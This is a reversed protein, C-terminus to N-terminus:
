VQRLEKEGFVIGEFVFLETEREKWTGPPLGAKFCVQDLFEFGNWGYETAVQPLLVGTRGKAFIYLGHRGVALDEAKAIKRLPGLVTIEIDIDEIEVRSVPDFRPDEFAAALAMESITEYLPTESRMRGICGRLQGNERLTVFAGVRMTVGKVRAPAATRHFLRAEIAERAVACLARRDETSLEVDM